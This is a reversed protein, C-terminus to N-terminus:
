LLPYLTKCFSKSEFVRKGYQLKLFPTRIAEQSNFSPTAKLGCRPHHGVTELLICHHQGCAHLLLRFISQISLTDFNPQPTELEPLYAPAGTLIQFNNWQVLGSPYNYKSPRKRILCIAFNTFHPALFPAHESKKEPPKRIIKQMWGTSRRAGGM